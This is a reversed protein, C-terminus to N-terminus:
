VVLFFLFFVLWIFETELFEVVRSPSLSYSPKGPFFLVAPLSNRRHGSIWLFGLLLSGTITGEAAFVWRSLSLSLSSSRCGLYVLHLDKDVVVAESLTWWDNKRHAPTGSTVNRGQCVLLSCSSPQNLHSTAVFLVRSPPPSTGALLLLPPRSPKGPRGYSATKRWCCRHTATRGGAAVVFSFSSYRRHIHTPENEQSLLSCSLLCRRHSFRRPLPLFEVSPSTPPRERM